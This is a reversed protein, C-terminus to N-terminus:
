IAIESSIQRHNIPKDDLNRGWQPPLRFHFGLLADIEDLDEDVEKPPVRRRSHPLGASFM